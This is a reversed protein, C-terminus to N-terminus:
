RRLERYYILPGAEGGAAGEGFVFLTVVLASVGRPSRLATV